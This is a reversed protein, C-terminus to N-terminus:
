IGSYMFAWRHCMTAHAPLMGQVCLKYPAFLAHGHIGAYKFVQIGSYRILVWCPVYCAAPVTLMVVGCWLVCQCVGTYRYVLIGWRVRIMTPHPAPWILLQQVCCLTNRHVSVSADAWFSNQASQAVCRPKNLSAYTTHDGMVFDSTSSFCLMCWAAATAKHMVTAM